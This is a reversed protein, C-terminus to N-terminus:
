RGDTHFRNMLFRYMNERLEEAEKKRQEVLEIYDDLTVSPHRKVYKKYPTLNSMRKKFTEFDLDPQAKVRVRYLKILQEKKM